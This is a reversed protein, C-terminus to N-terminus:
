NVSRDDMLKMYANMADFCRFCQSRIEDGPLGLKAWSKFVGGWGIREISLFKADHVAEWKKLMKDKLDLRTL